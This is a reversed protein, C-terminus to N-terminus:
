CIVTGDSMSLVRDAKDVLQQDHTAILLTSNHSRALDILINLVTATNASDLNGTPEDALILNPRNILARAIATRQLEGGSLQFPKRDALHEIGISSLLNSSQEKILKPETGLLLAPLEINQTVTLTSLLNFFQFVLGVNKLRFTALEEATFKTLLNGDFEIEGSDVRDLGAILNLLTSKGSGSKGTIAVVQRSPVSFTVGKLVEVAPSSPDTAYSKHLSRVELNKSM